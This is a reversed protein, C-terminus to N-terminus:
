EKEFFDIKKKHKAVKKYEIANANNKNIKHAILTLSKASEHDVQGRRVDMLLGTLMKTLEDYNDVEFDLNREMM